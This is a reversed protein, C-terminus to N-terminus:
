ENNSTKQDESEVVSFSCRGLGRNRDLGMRKIFRLADKVDKVLDKDIDLIEGELTCPVTVEIRRLSNPVAVGDPDIATSSVSRFLYPTLGEKVIADREKEPLEANKFFATGRKMSDEQGDFFGFCENIKQQLNKGQFELIEELSQRVLGKITKGPIYPIGYVDKIVLADVDAGAALGSGCHWDTFFEVKYKINM